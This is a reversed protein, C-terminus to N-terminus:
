RKSRPSGSARRSSSRSSVHQIPTTDKSGVQGLPKWTLQVLPQGSASDATGLDFVDTLVVLVSDGREVYEPPQGPRAHSLAFLVTDGASITEGHPLSVIARCSRGREVESIRQEGAPFTTMLPKEGSITNWVVGNDDSARRDRRRLWTTMMPSVSPAAPVTGRPTRQGPSVDIAVAEEGTAVAVAMTAAAVGAEVVVAATAVGVAAAGV